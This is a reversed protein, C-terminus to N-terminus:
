DVIRTVPGALGNFASARSQAYAAAGDIALWDGENIGAPLLWEGPLVDAGDCSPGAIRWAVRAGSGRLARIRYPIGRSSEILGNHLGCEL